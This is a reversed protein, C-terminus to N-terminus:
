GISLVFWVASCHTMPAWTRLGHWVHLPPEQTQKQTELQLCVRDSLPLQFSLLFLAFGQKLLHRM